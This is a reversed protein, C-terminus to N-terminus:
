YQSNDTITLKNNITHAGGQNVPRPNNKTNEQTHNVQDFQFKEELAKQVAPNTFLYQKFKTEDHLIKRKRDRTASLKAPYLLSPQCRHDRLIQLIDIWVRRSKLTELSLSPTIRIFRGKYAIQDKEM